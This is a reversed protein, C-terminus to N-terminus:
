PLREMFDSLSLIPIGDAKAKQIKVSTTKDAHVLLQTKKTLSDAMAWGSRTMKELLAPTPRCGTFVVPKGTADQKTEAKTDASTNAETSASGPKVSECWALVAPLVAFLGELTEKSWGDVERVTWRRPSSDNAFLPKLKREGVGRPLLNSAVM